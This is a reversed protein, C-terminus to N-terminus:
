NIFMVALSGVMRIIMSSIIFRLFFNYKLQKIIEKKAMDRLKPKLALICCGVILTVIVM